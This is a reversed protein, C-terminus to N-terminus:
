GDEREAACSDRAGGRACIVPVDARILQPSAHHLVSLLFILPPSVDYIICTPRIERFKNELGVGEGLRDGYLAVMYGALAGGYAAAKGGMDQAINGGEAGANDKADNTKM